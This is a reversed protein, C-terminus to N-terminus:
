STTREANARPGGEEGGDHIHMHPCREFVPSRSLLILDQRTRFFHLLPFSASHIFSHATAPSPVFLMEFKLIYCQLATSHLNLRAPNCPLLSISIAALCFVVLFSYLHRPTVDIDPMLHRTPYCAALREELNQPATSVLSRNRMGENFKFKFRGAQPPAMSAKM